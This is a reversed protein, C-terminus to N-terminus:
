EQQPTDGLTTADALDYGYQTNCATCEWTTNGTYEGSDAEEADVDIYGDRLVMRQKYTVIVRVYRVLRDLGARCQPCTIEAM